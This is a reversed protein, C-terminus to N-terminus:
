VNAKRRKRENNRETFIEGYKDAKKKEQRKVLANKRTIIGMYRVTLSVPLSSQKM